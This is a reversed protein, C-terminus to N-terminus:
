RLVKRVEDSLRARYRPREAELAPHLSPQAPRSRTGYELFVAYYDDPNFWGVDAVLGEERYRIDVTDKLHHSDRGSQDVPVLRQVDDRVAEASEKVGKALAQKIEDPLDQLRERLRAIGTITVHARGRRAM